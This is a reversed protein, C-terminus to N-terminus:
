ARANQESWEKVDGNELYSKKLLEWHDINNRLDLFSDYLRSADRKLRNYDERTNSPEDAFKKWFEVMYSAIVESQTLGLTKCGHAFRDRVTTSVRFGVAVMTETTTPLRKSRRATSGTESQQIDRDEISM